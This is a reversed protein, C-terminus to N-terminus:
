VEAKKGCFPCYLADTSVTKGCSCKRVKKSKKDIEASYKEIKEFIKEFEDGSIRAAESLVDSGAVLRGLKEYERALRERLAACEIAKKSSETLEAAKKGVQKATNEVADSFDDFFGM